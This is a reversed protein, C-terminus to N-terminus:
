KSCTPITMNTIHRLRTLCWLRKAKIGFQLNNIETQRLSSVKEMSNVRHFTEKMNEEMLGVSYELGMNKAVLMPVKTSEVTMGTSSVKEMCKTKAGNEGTNRVMLGSLVARAKKSATKIAVKMHAKTQGNKEVMDMSSIKSGTAPTTDVRKSIINVTEM